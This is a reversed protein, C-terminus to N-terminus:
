AIADPLLAEGSVVPEFQFSGMISQITQLDSAGCTATVELVASGNGAAPVQLILQRQLVGVGQETTFSGTLLAADIAGDVELRHPPQLERTTAQQLQEMASAVVEDLDAGVPLRQHAVLVNPQIGEEGAPGRVALLTGELWAARWEDPISLSFKPPPPFDSSPYGVLTM